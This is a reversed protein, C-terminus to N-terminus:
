NTSTRIPARLICHDTAMGASSLHQTIENIQLLEGDSSLIYNAETEWGQPRLPDTFIFPTTKSFQKNRKGESLPHFWTKQHFVITREKFQSYEKHRSKHLVRKTKSLDTHATHFIAPNFANVNM